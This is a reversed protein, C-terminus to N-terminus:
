AREPTKELLESLEADLTDLLVLMADLRVTGRENELRRFPAEFVQAYSPGSTEGANEDLPMGCHSCFVAAAPTHAYCHSCHKVAAM